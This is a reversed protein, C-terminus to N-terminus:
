KKDVSTDSENLKIGINGKIAKKFTKAIESAIEYTLNENELGEILDEQFKESSFFKALGKNIDKKYLSLDIDEVIKQVITQQIEKM